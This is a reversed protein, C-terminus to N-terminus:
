HGVASHIQMATTPAVQPPWNAEIVDLSEEILRLRNLEDDSVCVGVDHLSISETSFVGSETRWRVKVEEANGPQAEGRVKKYVVEAEVSLRKADLRPRINAEVTRKFSGKNSGRTEYPLANLREVLDFYRQKPTRQEGEVPGAEHGDIESRLQNYREAFDAATKIDM